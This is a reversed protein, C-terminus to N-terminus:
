GNLRIFSTPNILCHRVSRMVSGSALCTSLVRSGRERNVKRRTAAMGNWRAGGGQVTVWKWRVSLNLRFSAFISPFLPAPILLARARRSYHWEAQSATQFNHKIMRCDQITTSLFPGSKTSVIKKLITTKKLLNTHSCHRYNRAIKANHYSLHLHRWKAFCHNSLFVLPLREPSFMDINAYFCHIIHLLLGSIKYLRDTLKNELLHDICFHLYNGSRRWFRYM